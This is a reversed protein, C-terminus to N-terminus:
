SRYRSVARKWTREDPYPPQRADPKDRTIETSPRIKRGATVLCAECYLMKYAGPLRDDWGRREFMWWLAVADLRRVHQCSPCTLEITRRHLACHQLCRLQQGVHTLEDGPAV